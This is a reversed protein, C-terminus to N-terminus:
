VHAVLLDDAMVKVHGREIEPRVDAAPILVNMSEVRITVNRGLGRLMGSLRDITFNRVRGRLLKSLTPQDVGMVKAAMTQSLGVAEITSGIVRVLEAKAAMEEPDPYGLDAYINGSGVEFSGDELEERAIKAM